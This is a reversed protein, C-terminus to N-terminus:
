YPFTPPYRDEWSRGNSQDDRHLFSLIFEDLVGKELVDKIRVTRVGTRMDRVFREGQRGLSYMRVVSHRQQPPAPRKGEHIDMKIRQYESLWKDINVDDPIAFVRVNVMHDNGDGLSMKHVGREGKLFGFVNSGEFLLAIEDQPKSTMFKELLKRFNPANVHAFRLQKTNGQEELLYIDRDYGKAEAWNLYMRAIQRSWESDKEADDFPSAGLRDILMIARHRHPLHGTQMEIEFYMVNKYLEQYDNALDAQYTLDRERHVLIALDELYEVREMLQRLRRTMRDLFYFRGLKKQADEPNDWFNPHQTASLLSEKDDQMRKLRDNEAWDVLKRRLVAFGEVLDATDMQMTQFYDNDLGSSLQVNTSTEEIPVNKLLINRTDRDVEVRLLETESAMREALQRAMPQVVLNEIERKLPRAGYKRSYGKELVLDIVGEDIEVLLNRRTIGDRQLIENLERSAISRLALPSLQGFVVTQDIRNVFEPRFYREIQDQFHVVLQENIQALNADSDGGFGFGRFNGEGAGLNSTLIIITNHFYTTRGDADTLRGEGLVQLFVDYIRPSAKEFEDLLVVSFPQARVQKTLEGESNFAGILRAVGDVDSYESMDFRLLRNEDGFLYSALTKAMHTKGVGTPGIFLFTGMPKHPDNLGSKVTAIVNVMSAVAHDQGRVRELFYREVESLELRSQDNIIFEPMGSYRSFTDLVNQRKVPRRRFRSSFSLRRESNGNDFYNSKAMERSVEGVAEELLRVSKGPFSRYPLFRRALQISTSVASPEVRLNYEQELDRSVNNLVQLAEDESMPSVDLQRFLNIFAAGLREGLHMRDPTAEGMIIVEGSAVYPRLAQGVNNDSKSWRGIELLGPLDNVYLIHQKKRCENVLDQIREEWTGIYQAGAIIRDPTLMWVEREALEDPCDGNTIRYVLEEVIATKGSESPGMLVLSNNRQQALTHLAQEVIEERHYAKRHRKEQIQATLSVGIEKLAWFRDEDRDRRFADTLGDDEKDKQKQKKLSVEVELSDLSERRSYQFEMLQALTYSDLWSALEITAQDQLESRDYVYFSPGNRGLRPVTVYLQNDEQPHVLLSFLLKVKERRRNRKKRDMPRVEVQVKHMYMSSDYEYLHLQHPPTQKIREIVTESLEERIETMNIGYATIDYFPLVTVTYTRNKHKQVYLHFKFKM